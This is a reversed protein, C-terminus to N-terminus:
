KKITIQHRSGGDHSKIISLADGLNGANGIRTPLPNILEVPARHVNGNKENYTYRKDGDDHDSKIYIKTM